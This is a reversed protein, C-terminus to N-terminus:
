GSRGAFAAADRSEGMFVVGSSRALLGGRKLSTASYSSIVQNRKLILQANHSFSQSGGVTM